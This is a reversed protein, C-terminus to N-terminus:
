AIKPFEPSPFPLIVADQVTDACRYSGTLLSAKKIRRERIIDRRISLLERGSEQGTFTTTKM